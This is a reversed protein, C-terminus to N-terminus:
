QNVLQRKELADERLGHFGCNNLREQHLIVLVYQYHIIM